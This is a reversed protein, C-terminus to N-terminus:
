ENKGRERLIKKDEETLVVRQNEDYVYDRGCGLCRGDGYKCGLKVIAGCIECEMEELNSM